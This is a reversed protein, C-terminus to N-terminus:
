NKIILKSHYEADEQTILLQYIGTQITKDLNIKVTKETIDQISQYVLKGLLDFVKIETDQQPSLGSISFSYDTVPNPFISLNTFEVNPNSLTEQGFRLSFRWTDISEPINEDITFVVDTISDELLPTETDLYADYLFAKRNINSVDIQWLTIQLKIIIPIYNYKMM